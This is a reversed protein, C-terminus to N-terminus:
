FIEFETMQCLKGYNISLYWLKKSKGHDSCVMFFCGYRQSTIHPFSYLCLTCPLKFIADAWPIFLSPYKFFAQLHTCTTHMGRILLNRVLSVNLEIYM